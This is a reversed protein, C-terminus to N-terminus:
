RRVTGFLAVGGLLAAAALLGVVVLAPSNPQGDLAATAAVLGCGALVAFGVRGVWGSLVARDFPAQTSVSAGTAAATHVLYGAIGFCLARLLGPDEVGVLWGLVGVGLVGLVAASGPSRVAHVTLFAGLVVLVGGFSAPTPWPLLLFTVAAAALLVRPIM